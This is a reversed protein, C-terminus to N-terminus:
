LAIAGYRAPWHHSKIDEDYMFPGASIEILQNIKIGIAIDNFVERHLLGRIIAYCSLVDQITCRDVPFWLDIQVTMSVMDPVNTRAQGAMLLLSIAPVKPDDITAPHSTYINTGVYGTIDTNALLVARIKELVKSEVEKSNAM